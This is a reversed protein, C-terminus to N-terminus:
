KKRIPKINIPYLCTDCVSRSCWRCYFNNGDCHECNTDNGVASRKRLNAKVHNSFFEEDCGHCCILDCEWCSTFHYIWDKNRDLIIVYDCKDCIFVNQNKVYFEEEILHNTPKMKEEDTFEKSM